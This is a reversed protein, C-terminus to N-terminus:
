SADRHSARHPLRPEPTSISFSSCFPAAAAGARASAGGARPRGWGAGWCGCSRAARGPGARPVWPFSWASRASGQGRRSAPLPPPLLKGLLPVRLFGGHGRCPRLVAAPTHWAGPPPLLRTSGQQAPRPRPRRPRRAGDWGGRRPRSSDSGDRSPGSPARCVPCPRGQGIASGAGIILQGEEAGSNPCRVGHTVDWRGWSLTVQQSLWVGATLSPPKPAVRTDLLLQTFWMGPLTWPWIPCAGSCSPPM